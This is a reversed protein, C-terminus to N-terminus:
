DIFEKIMGFLLKQDNEVDESGTFYSFEIHDDFFDLEVRIRLLTFCVMISDSRNNELRFFVHHQKLFALFPILDRIDRLHNM